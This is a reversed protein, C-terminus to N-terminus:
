INEISSGKPKFSIKESGSKGSCSSNSNFSSSCSSESNLSVFSFPLPPLAKKVQENSKTNVQSTIPKNVKLSEKDNGVSSIKKFVKKPIRHTLDILDEFDDRENLDSQCTPTSPKISDVTEEIQIHKESRYVLSKNNNSFKYQNKNQDQALDLDENYNDYFSQRDKLIKANIEKWTPTDPKTIDSNLITSIKEHYNSRNNPIYNNIFETSSYGNLATTLNLRSTSIPSTSINRLSNTSLHM